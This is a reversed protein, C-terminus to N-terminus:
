VTFLFSRFFYLTLNHLVCSFIFGRPLSDNARIGQRIYQSRRIEVQFYIQYKEYTLLFNILSGLNVGLSRRISAPAPCNKTQFSCSVDPFYQSFLSLRVSFNSKVLRMGIYSFQAVFCPFRPRAGQPGGGDPSSLWRPSSKEM